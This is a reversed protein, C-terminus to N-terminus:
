PITEHPNRMTVVIRADPFAEILAEIRGCYTPNKSLHTRGGNLYSQRRVCERYFNMLRRRRREPWEDVYYFDLDELYPFRVIWWGSACAYTLVFDDEQPQFFGMRHMDQTAAFKREEFSEIRRAFFSGLLRRDVRGLWRIAKKQLLSPFSLEWLL